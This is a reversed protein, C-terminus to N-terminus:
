AGQAASRKEGARGAQDTIMHELEQECIAGPSTHDRDTAADGWVLVLFELLPDEVEALQFRRAVQRVHVVNEAAEAGGDLLRARLRRKAANIVLKDDRERLRAQARARMLKQEDARDAGVGGRADKVAAHLTFGFGGDPPQAVAARLDEPRRQEEALPALKARPSRM